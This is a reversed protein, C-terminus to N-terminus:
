YFWNMANFKNLLHDQLHITINKTSDSRFAKLADLSNEVTSSKEQFLKELLCIRNNAENQAILNFDELDVPENVIQQNNMDNQFTGLTNQSSARQEIVLYASTNFQLHTTQPNLTSFYLKALVFSKYCLISSLVLYVLVSM